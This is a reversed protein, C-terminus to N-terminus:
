TKGKEEAIVLVTDTKEYGNQGSIYREVVEWGHRVSGHYCSPAWYQGIKSQLIQNGKPSDAFFQDPCWGKLRPFQDRLLNGQYNGG